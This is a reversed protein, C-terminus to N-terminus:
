FVNEAVVVNGWLNIGPSSDFAFLSLVAFISDITSLIFLRRSLQYFNEDIGAM